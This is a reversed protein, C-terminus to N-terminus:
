TKKEDELGKIKSNLDSVILKYQNLQDNMELFEKQLKSNENRFSDEYESPKNVRHLIYTIESDLKQYIKNTLQNFKNELGKELKRKCDLLFESKSEKYIKM